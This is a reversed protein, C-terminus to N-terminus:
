PSLALRRLEELPVLGDVRRGNVFFTPTGKIGRQRGEEFSAEIVPRMRRESLCEGFAKADLGLEDAMRVLRSMTFSGTDGGRQSAFLLDHYEWFRGQVAACAAAEAAWKSEVGLFAYNRFGLRVKGEKVEGEMLPRVVQEAATACHPCQFDSYVEILVPASPSGATLLRNLEELTIAKGGRQPPRAAANAQQGSAPGPGAEPLGAPPVTSAPVYNIAALAVGAVLGAGLAAGPLRRYPWALAYLVALGAMLVGSATCWPCIGEVVWVQVGALYLSFAAGAWSVAVAGAM